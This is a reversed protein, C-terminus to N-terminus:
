GAMLIFDSSNKAIFDCILVPTENLPEFLDISSILKGKLDYLGAKRYFAPIGSVFVTDMSHNIEIKAVRLDASVM